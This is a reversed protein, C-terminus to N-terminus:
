PHGPKKLSKVVLAWLSFPESSGFNTRIYPQLGSTREIYSSYEPFIKREETKRKRERLSTIVWLVPLTGSRTLAMLM